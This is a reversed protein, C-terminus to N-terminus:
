KIGSNQIHGKEILKLLFEGEKFSDAWIELQKTM